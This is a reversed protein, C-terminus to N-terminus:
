SSVLPPLRRAKAARIAPALREAGNVYNDRAAREADDAKGGRIASTIRNHEEVTVKHDTGVFPAYAYEYRDILPRVTGILAILQPRGCELTLVEHFQGHNHFLAEYNLTRAAVSKSFRATWKDMTAAIDERTRKPMRAITRAASGELTGVIDYVDFMQNEDFEAVALQTRTRSGRPKLFGEAYLRALAERVPTRSVGFRRSTEGESLRVGPGIQGRIISDRLALYLASASRETTSDQLKAALNNMGVLKTYWLEAPLVKPRSDDM